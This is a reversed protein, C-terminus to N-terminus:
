LYNKIGASVYTETSTIVIGEIGELNDLEEIVKKPDEGFFRTTWIEGDVSKDSIITLSLMETAVPYGTTSSLIHHFKENDKKLVREYIGSTVVSKNNIKLIFEYTEQTEKPNKIGVNWHTREENPSNGFTVINGGLNILASLVNEEKLEKIILDAIFGKALAGLDISMGAELYVSKEVENLQICKPDIVVLLKEIEDQTPVKEDSFGIHWARTLPGIAINLFSNKALSNEKGLKILEYLDSHVKVAKKGAQLNIAMLESNNDNASFRQEYKKLKNFIEAITITEREYGISVDIVTGMLRIQESEWKM